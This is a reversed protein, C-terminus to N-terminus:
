LKRRKMYDDEVIHLVWTIKQLEKSSISDFFEEVPCRGEPTRYFIIKRKV